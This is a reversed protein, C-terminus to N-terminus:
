NKSFNFVLFKEINEKVLGGTVDKSGIKLQQDGNVLDRLEPPKEIIKQDFHTSQPRYNQIQIIKLKKEKTTRLIQNNIHSSGRNNESLGRKSLINKTSSLELDENVLDATEAFIQIKRGLLLKFKREEKM